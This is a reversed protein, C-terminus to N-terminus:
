GKIGCNDIVDLMVSVIIIGPGTILECPYDFLDKSPPNQGSFCVTPVRHKNAIKVLADANTHSSILSLSFLDPNHEIIDLAQLGISGTVGIVAIKKM